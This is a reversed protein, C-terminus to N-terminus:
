EGALSQGALGTLSFINRAMEEFLGIVMERPMVGAKDRMVAVFQQQSSSRFGPTLAVAIKNELGAGRVTSKM